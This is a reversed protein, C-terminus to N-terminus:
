KGNSIGSSSDLLNQGRTKEDCGDLFRPPLLEGQFTNTLEQLGISWQLAGVWKHFTGAVRPGHGRLAFLPWAMLVALLRGLSMLGIMVRYLGAYGTGRWTRFFQWMAERQMISIWRQKGDHGLSSKAGHHIIHASGVYYTKWGKALAAVSIEIDEAYMFYRANLGGVAQYVNRPIMQCAGSIADVRVPDPSDSFLPDIYWLRCRPWRLRLWEMSLIEGFMTPFRKVCSTQISHDTNLLMGGLIGADQHSALASLMTVIADGIIETDPNLLLVVRGLSHQFALNNARAFGLNTNSQIFRVQPFDVMLMEATGDFSANDVVIVEFVIGKTERYISQLCKRLFSKANWNVILISLQPSTTM